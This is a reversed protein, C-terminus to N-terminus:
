KGEAVLLAKSRDMRSASYTATGLTDAAVFHAWQPQCSSRQMVKQCLGASVGRRVHEAQLQLLLIWLDHLQKPLLLEAVLFHADRLEQGFIRHNKSGNEFM